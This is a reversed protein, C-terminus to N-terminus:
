SPLSVTASQALSGYPLRWPLPRRCLQHGALSIPWFRSQSRSTSMSQLSHAGLHCPSYASQGLPRGAHFCFQQHSARCGALPAGPGPLRNPPQGALPIQRFRLQCCDTPTGCPVWWSRATHTLRHDALNMPRFRCQCCQNINRLSHGRQWGASLRGTRFSQSQVLRPGSTVESVCRAAVCSSCCLFRLARHCPVCTRSVRPQDTRLSM